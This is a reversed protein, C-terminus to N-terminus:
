TGWSRPITGDLGRSNISLGVVRPPTGGVTVGDWDKIPTSPSWNLRGSGVLADRAALLSECDSIIGADIVATVAGGTVCVSPTTPTGTVSASWAVPEGSRDVARLQVEYQTGASLGTITYQPSGGASDTWINKVVTWNSDVTEDDATRIYRLDYSAARAEAFEDPAAWSVTLYGGGAEVAAITSAGLVRFIGVTYTLTAGGDAAVVKIRITTGGAGIDVQFGPTTTDADTIEDSDEGLFEFTVDHHTTAFVTVRQASVEAAYGPHYRDFSPTLSGPSVMLGSLLVDCFSLDILHLDNRPVARLRGPICGELERHALWLLTLNTLRELGTPIEGSLDNGSLKLLTLNSLNGLEAPIPGSLRNHGLILWKLNPLRGLESPIPGSM